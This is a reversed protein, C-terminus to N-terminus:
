YSEQMLAWLQTYRWFQDWLPKEAGTFLLRAHQISFSCKHSVSFTLLLVFTVQQALISLIWQAIRRLWILSSPLSSGDNPLLALSFSATCMGRTARRLSPCARPASTCGWVHHFKGSEVRVVVSAVEKNEAAQSFLLQTEKKGGDTRILRWARMCRNERGWKVNLWVLWLRGRDCLHAAYRQLKEEDRRTKRAAPGPPWLARVPKLPFCGDTASESTASGPWVRQEPIRPRGPHAAAGQNGGRRQKM